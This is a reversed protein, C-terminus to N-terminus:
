AVGQKALFINLTQSLTALLNTLGSLVVWKQRELYCRLDGVAFLLTVLLSSHRKKSDLHM